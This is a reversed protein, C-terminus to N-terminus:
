VEEKVVAVLHQQLLQEARERLGEHPVGDLIENAFAGCLLRRASDENLGRARLYYLMDDDLQGVTTGHSCVVDDAYIELQPKTDVEADRSLLLNDNSLRADSKQAQKEVLIRGDFVARGSGSLLGKFRERSSCGPVQHRVDLHFDTLQGEGCLYLGQLDASAGEGALSLSLETRSWGAGGVISTSRYRSGQEQRLHLGTLHAGNPSQEELRYHELRSGGRLQVEAVMNSFYHPAGVVGYREIVVAEAGEELQLLVRPQLLLRKDGGVCLHLLEIPRELKLGPPIRIYIGEELFATNMAAFLHTEPGSIEGPRFSLAGELMARYLSGAWVGEPLDATRSCQDSWRGNVLVLLHADTELPVAAGDAVQAGDVGPLEYDQDLLFEVRTYRWAEQKRVPTELEAFRQEAAGRIAELWFPEMAGGGAAGTRVRANQALGKM